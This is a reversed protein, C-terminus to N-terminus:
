LLGASLLVSQRSSNITEEFIPLPYTGFQTVKNLARYDVCFRYKPRGDTSKKPVFIAPSNWPSSSPEIVGKKLMTRVQGEMEERLAYPVRYQAKRIPRVGGTKIKHEVFDTGQFEAAEDDHFLHRYKRLVHELVTRDKRTLHGLVCELYESYKSETNADRKTLVQRKRFM